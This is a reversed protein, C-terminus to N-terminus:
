NLAAVRGVFWALGPDNAAREHWVMRYTFRGAEPLDIVEVAFMGAVLEALRRTTCLQHDSRSVLVAGTLLYPSRFTGASKSRGFPALADDVAMERGDPYLIVM